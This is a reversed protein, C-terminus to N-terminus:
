RRAGPASDVVVAPFSALWSFISGISGDDQLWYKEYALLHATEPDFVLQTRFVPGDIALGVGPRQLRDRVDGVLVVGGLRAAVEFLAARLEPSADGQALLEGILLFTQDDGPSRVVPEGSRLARLLDAPDTPLESLDTWPGHGEYHDLLVEGAAPVDPRGAEVWAQRDIASAFDTSLYETRRVGSGDSAIWNKIDVRVLVDFSIGTELHTSTETYVGESHALVYEGPGAQLAPSESVVKALRRLEAAAAPAQAFPAALALVVVIALVAAVAAAAGFARRRRRRPGERQIAAAVRGRIRERAAPDVAPEHLAERTLELEDM